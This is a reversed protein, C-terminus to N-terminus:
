RSGATCGCTARHVQEARLAGVVVSSQTCSNGARRQAGARVTSRRPREVDVVPPADRLLLRRSRLQGVIHLTSQCPRVRKLEDDDDEDRADPKPPMSHGGSVTEPEPNVWGGNAYSLSLFSPAAPASQRVLHVTTEFTRGGSCFLPCM